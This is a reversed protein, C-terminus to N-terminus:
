TRRLKILYFATKIESIAVQLPAMQLDPELSVQVQEIEGFNAGQIDAEVGLLYKENFQLNYGLQGGGIFGSQTFGSVVPSYAIGILSNGVVSTGPPL